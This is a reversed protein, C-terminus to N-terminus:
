CFLFCFFFLSFAIYLSFIVCVFAFFSVHSSSVGLFRGLYLREVSFKDNYASVDVDSVSFQSLLCRIFPYLYDDKLSALVFGVCASFMALGSIDVPFTKHRHQFRSVFQLM